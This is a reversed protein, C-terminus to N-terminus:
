DGSYGGFFIESPQDDQYVVIYLAEWRRRFKALIRAQEKEAVM